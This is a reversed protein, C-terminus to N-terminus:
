FNPLGVVSMPRIAKISFFTNFILQNVNDYFTQDHADDNFYKVGFVDNLLNPNVYLSGKSRLKIGDRYTIMDLVRPACWMVSDGKFIAETTHEIDFYDYKAFQGHCKDLATKYWWYQSAFGLPTTLLAASVQNANYDSLNISDLGTNCFEETFFDFPEYLINARDIMSSSYESEPRFYQMCLIVGFDSCSFQIEKGSITALVSSGLNGVKTNGTGSSQATTEVTNVNM